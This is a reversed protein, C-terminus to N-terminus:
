EEYGVCISYIDDKTETYGELYFNVKGWFWWIFKKRMIYDILEGESNYVSVFFDISKFPWTLYGVECQINFYDNPLVEDPAEVNSIWIELM